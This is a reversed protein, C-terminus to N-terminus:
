RRRSTTTRSRAPRRAGGLPISGSCDASYSTAYGSVAPETVSYTGADHGYMTDSATPRSRASRRRRRREGQFSFDIRGATGGDDNVVVKKVILTAPQDNNTVTCTATGGNPIVINSCGQYSTTYGAVAPEVVNYTGAAVSLDNQGDAEFSIASGGNM